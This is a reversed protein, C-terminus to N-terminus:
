QGGGAIVALLILDILIVTVGAVVFGVDRWQDTTISHIVSVARDAADAKTGLLRLFLRM